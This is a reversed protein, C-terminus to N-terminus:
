LSCSLKLLHRGLILITLCSLDEKKTHVFHWSFGIDSANKLIRGGVAMSFSLDAEIRLCKSIEWTRQCQRSKIFQILMLVDHMSSLSALVIEGSLKCNLLHNRVASINEAIDAAWFEHIRKDLQAEASKIRTTSTANGSREYRTAVNLYKPLNPFLSLVAQSTLRQKIIDETRNRKDRSGQVFDQPCFHISCVRSSSTPQFSKRPIVKLWKDLLEQSKLPFRHASTNKLTRTSSSSSCGPM